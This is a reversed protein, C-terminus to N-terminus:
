LVAVVNAAVHTLAPVSWRGSAWRQWSLLLGAALDVPLAWVGWVTLHVLAFAMASGGVAVATGYPSLMGYLLRRFFAEEAVAALTNLVLYAALAPAAARGGALLRGAIFAGLGAAAVLAATTRKPLRYAVGPATAAIAPGGDGPLPWWAGVAGLAVFLVVLVATPHAVATTIWPRGLLAAAGTLAVAVSVGPWRGLRGAPVAIM